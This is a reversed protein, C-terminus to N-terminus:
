TARDYVFGCLGVHIEQQQQDGQAKQSARFWREIGSPVNEWGSELLKFFDRLNLMMKGASLKATLICSNELDAELKTHAEAQGRESLMGYISQKMRMLCKHMSRQNWRNLIWTLRKVARSRDLGSHDPVPQSDRWLTMAWLLEGQSWNALKWAFALSRLVREAAQTHLGIVREGVTISHMAEDMVGEVRGVLGEM